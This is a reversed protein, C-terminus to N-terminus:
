IGMMEAIAVKEAEIRDLEAIQEDTIEDRILLATLKHYRDDMLMPPQLTEFLAPINM